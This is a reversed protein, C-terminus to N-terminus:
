PWETESLQLFQPGQIWVSNLFRTVSLGRSACHALNLTGSVYRWQTVDSAACISSVRNAVFTQFRSTENRLYKLVSTSDTWYVTPMLALELESQLIRDMRVAM